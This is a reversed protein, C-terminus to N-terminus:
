VRGGALRAAVAALTGSERYADQQAVAREQAEAPTSGTRAIGNPLTALFCWVGPGDDYHEEINVGTMADFETAIETRNNM